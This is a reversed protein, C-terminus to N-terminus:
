WTMALLSTHLLATFVTEEPLLGVGCFPTYPDEFYVTIKQACYVINCSKYFLKIIMLSFKIYSFLGFEM